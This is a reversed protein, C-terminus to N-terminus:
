ASAREKVVEIKKLDKVNSLYSLVSNWLSSGGSALLGLGLIAWSGTPRAVDEPIYDKALYATLVGAIVALVHLCTRRMGEGKPDPNQKDLWPILGKVIEVLRESAISLALLMTIIATIKEM